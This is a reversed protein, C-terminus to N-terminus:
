CACLSGMHNNVVSDRRGSSAPQERPDPCCASDDRKDDHYAGPVLVEFRRARVMQVFKDCRIALLGRLRRVPFRSLRFRRRSESALDIQALLQAADRLGVLPSAVLAGDSRFLRDGAVRDM